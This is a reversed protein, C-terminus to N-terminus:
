LIINAWVLHFYPNVKTAGADRGPHKPHAQCDLFTQAIGASGGRDVRQEARGGRGDGDGGVEKRHKTQSTGPVYKCSKSQSVPVVRRLGCWAGHGLRALSALFKAGGPLINSRPHDRIQDDWTRIKVNGNKLQMVM